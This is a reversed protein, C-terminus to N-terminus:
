QGPSNPFGFNWAVTIRPREGRYLHVFHVLQSPFGFMLGEVAVPMIARSLREPEEHCCAELRPDIFAFRGNHPNSPDPTGLDLFYVVSLSARVHSHPQGYEGPAMVNAWSEILWADPHWGQRVFARARAALIDAEKMGWQELHYAKAGGSGPLGSSVGVVRELCAAVLPPHLRAVDAFRTSKIMPHAFSEIRQGAPWADMQTAQTDSENMQPM